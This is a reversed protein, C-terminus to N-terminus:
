RKISLLTELLNSSPSIFEGFHFFVFLVQVWINTEFGMFKRNSQAAEREMKLYNKSIVFVFDLLQYQVLMESM